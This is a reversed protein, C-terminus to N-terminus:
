DIRKKVYHATKEDPGNSQNKWMCYMTHVHVTGSKISKWKMRQLPIPHLFNGISVQNGSSLDCANKEILRFHWNTFSLYRICHMCKELEEQM